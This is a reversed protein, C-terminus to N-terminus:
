KQLIPLYRYPIQLIICAVATDFAPAVGGFWMGDPTQSECLMRSADKWYASWHPEGALYFAQSAYLHAYFFHGGKELRGGPAKQKLFKLASKVNESSYDGLSYFCMLGAATLAASGGGPNSLKYRISGDQNQSKRLYELARNITQIPVTIGANRCARLGEVQTVTVSGEDDSQGPSYFWGGPGSQSEATLKVARKLVTRIRERHESLTEMGYVEGLFLMAYGHCHMLSGNATAILGTTPDSRALLYSVARSVNDAYPGRMPTSGNALFALGAVATLAVDNTGSDGWGGEASQNRALWDLGKRVAKQTAPTIEQPLSVAQDARVLPMLLAGLLLCATQKM